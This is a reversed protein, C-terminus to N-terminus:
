RRLLLEIATEFLANAISQREAQPVNALSEEIRQRAHQLQAVELACTGSEIRVLRERSACLLQTNVRRM